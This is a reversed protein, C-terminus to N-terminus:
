YRRKTVKLVSRRYEDQEDEYSMRRPRGSAWTSYAKFACVIAMAGGFMLMGTNMNPNEFTKGYMLFAFLVWGLSSALFLVGNKFRFGMVMLALVVAVIAFITMGVGEIFDSVGTEEWIGAANQSFAAYYVPTLTEDLSVATDSTSTGDGYYVQYGDTRSEPVSGYKARIMTNVADEGKTWSLGVEYDSIYIVTFGGPAGCVYGTATVTVDASTAALVTSPVLVVAFTIALLCLLRLRKM